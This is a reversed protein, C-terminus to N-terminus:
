LQMYLICVYLEKLSMERGLSYTCVHHEGQDVEGGLTRVHHDVLAEQGDLREFNHTCVHHEEVEVDGDLGDVGIGATVYMPLVVTLSVKRM